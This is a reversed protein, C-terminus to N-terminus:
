PERKPDTRVCGEQETITTKRPAALALMVRKGPASVVLCWHGGLDELHVNCGKGVLEDLRGKEDYRLEIARDGAHQLDDVAARAERTVAEAQKTLAVAQAFLTSEYGSM